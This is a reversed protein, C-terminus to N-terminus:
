KIFIILYFRIKVELYSLEYNKTQINNEYKAGKRFDNEKKAEAVVEKRM